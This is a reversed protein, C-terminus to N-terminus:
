FKDFLYLVEIGNLTGGITNKPQIIDFKKKNETMKKLLYDDKSNRRMNILKMINDPYRESNRNLGRIIEIQNNKLNIQSKKFIKLTDNGMNKLDEKLNNRISIYWFKDGYKEHDTKLLDMMNAKEIKYRFDSSTQILHESKARTIKRKLNMLQKDWEDENQKKKMFIRQEKNIYLQDNTKLANFLLKDNSSNERIRDEVKRIENMVQSKNMRIVNKKTTIKTANSGNNTSNLFTTRKSTSKRKFVSTADAKLETESANFSLTNMPSYISVKREYKKHDLSQNFKRLFHDPKGVISYKILSGSQDFRPGLFKDYYESDWNQELSFINPTEKQRTPIENFNTQSNENNIEPIIFFNINEPEDLKQALYKPKPFLRVPKTKFPSIKNRYISSIELSETM